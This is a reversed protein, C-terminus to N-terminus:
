IRKGAAVPKSIAGTSGKELKTLRGELSIVLNKLGDVVGHLQQNEKELTSIRELLESPMNLNAVGDVRELSSKIHQRAKAIETVLTSTSTSDTGNQSLLDIM